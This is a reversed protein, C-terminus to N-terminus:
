LSDFYREKHFATQDAVNKTEVEAFHANRSNYLAM